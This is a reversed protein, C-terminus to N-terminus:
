TVRRYSIRIGFPRQLNCRRTVDANRTTNCSRIRVSSEIFGHHRKKERDRSTFVRFSRTRRGGNRAVTDPFIASPSTTTLHLCTDRPTLSYCRCAYSLYDRACTRNGMSDCKKHITILNISRRVSRSDAKGRCPNRM